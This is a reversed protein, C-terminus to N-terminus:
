LCPAIIATIYAAEAATEIVKHSMAREKQSTKHRPVPCKVTGLNQCKSWVKKTESPCKLTKQSLKQPRKRLTKPSANKYRM